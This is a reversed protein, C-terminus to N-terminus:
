RRQRKRGTTRNPKRGNGKEKGELLMGAAAGTLLVAGLIWTALPLHTGPVFHRVVELQALQLLLILVLFVLLALRQLRTV